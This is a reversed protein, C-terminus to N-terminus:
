AGSGSDAGIPAALRRDMFIPVPGTRCANCQAAPRAADLFSGAASGLRRVGRHVTVASSSPVNRDPTPTSAVSSGHWRAGAYARSRPPWKPDTAQARAFGWGTAVLAVAILVRTFVATM